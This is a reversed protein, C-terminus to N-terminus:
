EPPARARERSLPCCRAPTPRMSGASTTASPPRPGDSPPACPPCGRSKQARGKPPHSPPRRRMEPSVDPLIEPCSKWPCARTSETTAPACTCSLRGLHGRTPLLALYNRAQEDAIKLVRELELPRNDGHEGVNRVAFRRLRDVHREKCLPDRREVLRRRQYLFFERQPMAHQDMALLSALARRQDHCPEQFCPAALRKVFRVRQQLAPPRDDFVAPAPQTDVISLWM